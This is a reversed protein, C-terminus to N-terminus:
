CGPLGAKSRTACFFRIQIQMQSIQLNQATNQIELRAIRAEVQTKDKTWPAERNIQDSVEARTIQGQWIWGFMLALVTAVIGVTVAMGSRRGSQEDLRQRVAESSRVLQDKVEEIEARRVHDSRIESLDERLLAIADLAEARLAYQEPFGKLEEHLLQIIDDYHEKLLDPTWAAKVPGGSLHPVAQGSALPVPEGGAAPLAQVRGDCSGLIGGCVRFTM